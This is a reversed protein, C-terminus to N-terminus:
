SPMRAVERHQRLMYAFIWGAILALIADSIEASRGVMFTQLYSTAALLVCELAVALRLRLGMATLLFITVGYLFFKEAFAIADIAQSGHLFSFFPIWQFSKQTAAFQWPLVRSLTVVALMTAAALPLGVAKFRGLLLWALALALAAGLLESFVVFQGIISAKAGFFCLVALPFLGASRGIGIRFLFAVSLWLATYRFLILPEVNPTLLVPELSRWYHHIELTPAYPYLRWGLWTLLLLRAFAAGGGGPWSAQVLRAAAVLAIITGVLLGAVNLYFDSFASVRGPDYFQALEISLSMITGCVITLVAALVRPMAEAFALTVALGLPIYLLLNAVVDGRGQPPLRASALFHAIDAGIPGAQRFAFPYLSGYAVLVTVAAALAWRPISRPADGSKSLSNTM